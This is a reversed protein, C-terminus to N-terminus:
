MLSQLESTHEESRTAQCMLVAIRYCCTNFQKEPFFWVNNKKGAVQDIVFGRFHLVPSGYKFFQFGWETNVGDGSIVVIAIVPIPFARLCFFLVELVELPYM